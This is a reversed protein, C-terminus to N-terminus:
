LVVPIEARPPGPLEKAEQAALWKDMKQSWEWGAKFHLFAELSETEDECIVAEPEPDVENKPLRVIIGQVPDGHGMERLAHRYAANQLHAEPYVAKGTKFDVVTPKGDIECFLDMTGAYGYTKSYVTQEIFIPTLNVSAAWKEFVSFAWNAKATMEPSPGVKQLLKMRLTWEIMAHVQTGIQGAKALLRDSAKERGLRTEMTLLWAARSMKAAPADQYLDAAVEMVLNREEKAAWNILAPKGIVGLINTVSPFTGDVTEYFRGRITSKRSAMEFLSTTM